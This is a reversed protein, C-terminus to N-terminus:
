GRAVETLWPERESWEVIKAVQVLLRVVEGSPAEARDDIVAYRTYGNASAIDGFKVYAPEAGGFGAGPEIPEVLAEREPIFITVRHRHGSAGVLQVERAVDVKRERLEHEVEGAFGTEPEAMKAARRKRPRYFTMAEAIRASAGGVAWVMMPLDIANAWGEVRGDIFTLGMSGCIGQALPAFTKLDPSYHAFLTTYGQGLDTVEFGDKEAAVWVTVGDGQPYTLPLLCAIRDGTSPSCEIEGAVERTLAACLEEPEIM